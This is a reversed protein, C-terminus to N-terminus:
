PLTAPQRRTNLLKTIARILNTLLLLFFLIMGIAWIIRFPLYPLHIADTRESSWLNVFTFTAWTVIGWTMTSFFHAIIEFLLRKRGKFRDLLLRVAVHVGHIEGYAFAFSVAVICFLESIEYTGVIVRGFARAIVNGILVLMLAIMFVMSLIICIRTIRCLKDYLYEM